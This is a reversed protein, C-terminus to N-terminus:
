KKLVTLSNPAMPVLVRNKNEIPNIKQEIKLPINTTPNYLVHLVTPILTTGAIIIRDKETDIAPAATNGNGRLICKIMPIGETRNIKEGIDLKKRQFFLLSNDPISFIDINHKKM